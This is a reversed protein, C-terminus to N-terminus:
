RWEEGAEPVWPLFCLCFYDNILCDWSVPNSSALLLAPCMLGKSKCLRQQTLSPVATAGPSLAHGDWCSVGTQGGQSQTGCSHIEGVAATQCSHSM